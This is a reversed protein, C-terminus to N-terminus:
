ELKQMAARVAEIHTMGPESVGLSKAFARWQAPTFAGIETSRLGGQVLYAAMKKAETSLAAIGTKSSTASEKALPEDSFGKFPDAKATGATPPVKGTYRMSAAPDQMPVDEVPIGAAASEEAVKAKQLIDKIKDITKGGKAILRMGHALRPSVVGAVDQATENEAIARAGRAVAPVAKAIGMTASAALPPGALTGLGGAVDGQRMQEVAGPVNETGMPMKQSLTGPTGINAGMGADFIAQEEPTMEYKWQAPGKMKGDVFNDPNREAAQRSVRLAKMAKGIEEPRHWWEKVAPAPNISQLASSLFRMLPGDSDDEVPKWGAPTGEPATAAEPAKPGLVPTWGAM